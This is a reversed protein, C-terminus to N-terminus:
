LEWQLTIGGGGSNLWPTAMLRNRERDEQLTQTFLAVCEQTFYDIWPQAAWGLWAAAIGIGAGATVDGIWHRNHYTRMFGTTIAITYGAAALWPYRSGYELRLIEAGMFATATHGSPFSNANSFDPRLSLEQFKIWNVIALALIGAGAASQYFDNGTTRGPVDALKMIVACAIPLYQMADDVGRLHHRPKPRKVGPIVPLDHVPDGERYKKRWNANARSLGWRDALIFGSVALGIPVGWADTFAQSQPPQAAQRPLATSPANRGIPWTAIYDTRLQAVSDYRALQAHSYGCCLLLIITPLLASVLLRWRAPQGEM